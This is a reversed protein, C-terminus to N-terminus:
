FDAKLKWGRPFASRVETALASGDRRWRAESDESDWGREYHFHTEWDTQWAMLRHLLDEPVLADTEDAQPWLPVEVGYDPAPRITRDPRQIRRVIGRIRGRLSPTILIANGESLPAYAVAFRRPLRSGDPFLPREGRKIAELMEPDPNPSDTKGSRCIIGRSLRRGRVAGLASSGCRVPPLHCGSSPM